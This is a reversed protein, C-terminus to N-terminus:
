RAARLAPWGAAFFAGARTSGRLPREDRTYFTRGCDERACLQLRGGQDALRQALEFYLADILARGSRRITVEFTGGLALVLAQERIESVHSNISHHVLGHSHGHDHAHATM